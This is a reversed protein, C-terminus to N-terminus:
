RRVPQTAGSAAAEAACSAGTGEVTAVTLKRVEVRTQAQTSVNPDPGSTGQPRASEPQPTSEQVVAVKPPEAEGTVRVQMGVHPRFQEQNGVLQFTETTAEGAGRELNTLVFQDGRATLCGTETVPLPRAGDLYDSGPRDGAHDRDTRGCGILGLCVAMVGITIRKM